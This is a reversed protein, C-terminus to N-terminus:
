FSFTPPNNTTTQGPWTTFQNSQCLAGEQLDLAAGPGRAVSHALRLQDALDRLQQRQLRLQNAVQVRLINRDLNFPVSSRTPPAVHLLWLKSVFSQAICAAREVVVGSLESLDVTVLINQM